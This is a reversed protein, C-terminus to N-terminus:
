GILWPILPKLESTEPVRKCPAATRPLNTKNKAPLAAAHALTFKSSDLAANGASHVAGPKM